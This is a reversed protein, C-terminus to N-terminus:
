QNVLQAASEGICHLCELQSFIKLTRLDRATQQLSKGRFGQKM